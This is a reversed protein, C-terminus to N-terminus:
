YSESEYVWEGPKPDILRQEIVDTCEPFHLGTNKPLIGDGIRKVTVSVIYDKLLMKISRTAESSIMISQMTTKNLGIKNKFKM